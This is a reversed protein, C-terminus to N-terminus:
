TRPSTDNIVVSDFGGNTVCVETGAGDDIWLSAVYRQEPLAQFDAATINITGVIAGPLQSTITVDVSSAGLGSAKALVKSAAYLNKVSWTVRKGLLGNNADTINFPVAVKEGRHISIQDSASM